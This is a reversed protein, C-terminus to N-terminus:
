SDRPSPSTYLLCAKLKAHWQELTQDKGQLEQLGSRWQDQSRSYLSQAEARKDEPVLALLGDFYDKGVATLDVPM